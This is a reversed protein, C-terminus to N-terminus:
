LFIVFFSHLIAYSRKKYPRFKNFLLYDVDFDVVPSFCRKNLLWARQCNKKLDVISIDDIQNDFIHKLTITDVKCLKAFASISLQNKELYDSIIKTNIYIGEM